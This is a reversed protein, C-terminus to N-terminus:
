RVRIQNDPLPQGQPALVDMIQRSAGVRVGGNGNISDRAVRLINKVDDANIPNCSTGTYRTVGAPSYYAGGIDDLGMTHGIEHAVLRTQEGMDYWTNTDFQGFAVATRFRKM